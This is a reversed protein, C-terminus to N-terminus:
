ILEWLKFWSWMQEHEKGGEHGHLNLPFITPFLLFSLSLCLLSANASINISATFMMDSPHCLYINILWLSAAMFDLWSSRCLQSSTTLTCSVIDANSLHLANLAAENRSRCMRLPNFFLGGRPNFRSSQRHERSEAVVALLNAQKHSFIIINNNQNWSTIIIFWLDLRLWYCEAFQSVVLVLSWSCLLALVADISWEMYSFFVLKYWSRSLKNYYRFYCM